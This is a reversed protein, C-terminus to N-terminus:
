IVLLKIVIEKNFSGDGHYNSTQNKTVYNIAVHSEKKAVEIQSEDSLIDFLDKLNIDDICTSLVIQLSGYDHM